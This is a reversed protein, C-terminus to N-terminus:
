NTFFKQTLCGLTWDREKICSEILDAPNTPPDKSELLRVSDKLVRLYDHEFTKQTIANEHETKYQQFNELCATWDREIKPAKGEAILAAAKLSNGELALNYINNIRTTAAKKLNEAWAIPLTVSQDKQNPVYRWKLRMKGKDEAISWGRALSM